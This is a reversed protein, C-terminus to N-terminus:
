EPIEDLVYFDVNSETQEGFQESFEGSNFASVEEQWYDIMNYYKSEDIIFANGGEEKQCTFKINIEFDAFCDPSVEENKYNAWLAVRIYEGTDKIKFLM